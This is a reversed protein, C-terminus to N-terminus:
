LPPAELSQELSLQDLTSTPEDIKGMSDPSDECVVQEFSPELRRPVSVSSIEVDDDSDTDLPTQVMENEELVKNQFHLDMDMGVVLTDDDVPTPTLTDDYHNECEEESSFLQRDPLIPKLPSEDLIVYQEATQPHIGDDVVGVPEVSSFQVPADPSNCLAIASQVDNNCQCLVKFALEEGIGLNVLEDMAAATVAVAKGTATTLVGGELYSQEPM